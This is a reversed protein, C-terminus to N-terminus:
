PDPAFARNRSVAAPIGPQRNAILFITNELNTATASLWVARTEARRAAAPIATVHDAGVFFFFISLHKNEEPKELKQKSLTVLITRLTRASRSVLLVFLLTSSCKKQTAACNM